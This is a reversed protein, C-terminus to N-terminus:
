SSSCVIRCVTARLWKVCGGEPACLPMRRTGHKAASCDAYKQPDKGGSEVCRKKKKARRRGGQRPIPCRSSRGHFHRQRRRVTAAIIRTTDQQQSISILEPAAATRTRIACHPRHHRTTRDYLGGVGSCTDSQVCPGNEGRNSEEVQSGKKLIGFPEPLITARRRRRCHCRWCAAATLDGSRSRQSAWSHDSRMTAIEFLPVYSGIAAAIVVPFVDRIAAEYRKRQRYRRACTRHVSRRLSSRRQGKCDIKACTGSVTTMPESTFAPDSLGRTWVYRTFTAAEPEDEDNRLLEDDNDGRNWTPPPCSTM